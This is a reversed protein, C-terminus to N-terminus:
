KADSWMWGMVRKCIKVLQPCLKMKVRCGQIFRIVTRKVSVFIIKEKVHLEAYDFSIM